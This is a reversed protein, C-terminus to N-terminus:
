GIISRYERDLEGNHFEGIANGEIDERVKEAIRSLMPEFNSKPKFWEGRRHHKAFIHHAYKEVQLAHFDSKCRVYFILNLKVPSGVQLVSCRAEPDKAKGIKYMPSQGFAKIVYVYM